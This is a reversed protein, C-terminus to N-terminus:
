NQYISCVAMENCIGIIYFWLGRLFVLYNIVIVNQYDGTHLGSYAMAVKSSSDSM